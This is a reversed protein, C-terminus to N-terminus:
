RPDRGSCDLPRVPPSLPRAGVEEARAHGGPALSRLSDTFRDGGVPDMVVDVGRGGTLEKVADKFGDALVV